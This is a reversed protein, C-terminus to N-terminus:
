DYRRVRIIGVEWEASMEGPAKCIRVVFGVAVKYPEFVAYEAFPSALQPVSTADVPVFVPPAFSKASVTFAASSPPVLHLKSAPTRKKKILPM